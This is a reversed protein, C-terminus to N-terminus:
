RACGPELRVVVGVPCASVRVSVTLGALPAISTSAVSATRSLTASKRLRGTSSSAGLTRGDRHAVEDGAAQVGLDGALGDPLGVLVGHQLEGLVQRFPLM